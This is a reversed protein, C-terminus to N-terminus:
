TQQQYTMKGFHGLFTQVYLFTPEAQECQTGLILENM